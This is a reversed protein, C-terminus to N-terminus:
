KASKKSSHFRLYLENEMAMVEKIAYPKFLPRKVKTKVWIFSYVGLVLLTILVVKYLSLKVEWSPDISYIMYASGIIGLVPVTYGFPTKFNRPADPLRRRLLIVNLNSIIYSILWLVALVSIMYSISDASSLGTVNLIVFIAMELFIGIYPAGKKNTKQFFEPLLGIKSMGMLIYALSGLITNVSSIAALLTIILMWYRGFPGLLAQGYLMQPTTSGALDGWTTYNKFGLTLFTQMALIILMSVVMGLPIDRKPNKCSKNLPIVYEGGVFLFFAIGCLSTVSKFDSALAEPQEVIEGTGIGLAGMVGMAVLSLILAYAVIDQVKVFVDVGNLNTIVLFGILIVTFVWAPIGFQSFMEAFANGFVAGEVSGALSNCLIYGGVMCIITVFPGVCALSFQALGGTLNPMLSNLEAISLLTLINVICAIVMTIIFPTGISGAGIGLTLLCSSAVVLGVGTAIVSGLGVKKEDM